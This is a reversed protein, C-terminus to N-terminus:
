LHAHEAIARLAPTIDSDAPQVQVCVHDAGADLHARVAAALTDPGGHAIIADVLEDSGGGAVDADTFGARRMTTTYNSMGLYRSLFARAARRGSEPDADLVVTQEPAVLPGAGLTARAQRTQATVTLYPHTGGARAAAMALMRPGLASLIRDTVPVGRDDLVDLYASMAEVPRARGADAERHGSGIGLLLRGPHRAQVRHYAAALEAADARWINVIGTAVVLTQTADLVAEAALLDAGPSGGLWLTGYGLAEIRGALVADVLGVGRWVGIAGLRERWGM